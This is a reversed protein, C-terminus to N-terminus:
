KARVIYKRFKICFQHWVKGAGRKQGGLESANVRFGGVRFGPHGKKDSVYSDRREGSKNEGWLASQVIFARFLLMPDHAWMDYGGDEMLIYSAIVCEGSKLDAECQCVHPMTHFAKGFYSFFNMISERQGCAPLIFQWEEDSDAEYTEEEWFYDRRPLNVDKQNFSIKKM